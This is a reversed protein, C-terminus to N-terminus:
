LLVPDLLFRNSSSFIRHRRTSRIGFRYSSRLRNCQTHAKPPAVIVFDTAFAVNANAAAVITALNVNVHADVVAVDVNAAVVVYAADEVDDADSM